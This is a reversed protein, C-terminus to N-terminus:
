YVTFNTSVYYESHKIKIPKHEGKHSSKVVPTTFITYEGGHGSQGLNAGAYSSQQHNQGHGEQQGYGQQQAYVQHSYAQQHELNQQHQYTQQQGLHQHQYSQQQGHHQLEYTQQPVHHQEYHQQGHTQVVPLVFKTLAPEYQKIVPAIYKTQVHQIPAIHQTKILHAPEHELKITPKPYDYGSSFSQSSLGSSYGHDHAYEKQAGLSYSLSPTISVHTLKEPKKYSYGSFSHSAQSYTPLELSHLKTYSQEIPASYKYSSHGGYNSLGATVHYGQEKKLSIDHSKFSLGAPISLQINPRHIPQIHNPTFHVNQIPALQVPKPQYQVTKLTQIHPTSIQIPQFHAPPPNYHIPQPAHYSEHHDHGADGCPPLGLAM